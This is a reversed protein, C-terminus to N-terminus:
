DESGTDTDGQDDDTDGTDDGDDASDTEAGETEPADVDDETSETSELDDEVDAQPEEDDSGVPLEDPVDEVAPEPEEPPEVATETETVTDDVPESDPEVSVRQAEDVLPEEAVEDADETALTLVPGAVSAVRPLPPTPLPPLPIPFWGLSLIYDIEDAVGNAFGAAATRVVANIGDAWVAPNFLDNVVPDLFDYVFSDATPLVLDPYWIDIQDAILYGLPVWGLLWPGLDLAIYNAWYRAVSYVDDIVNSAANSVVPDALQGVLALASTFDQPPPPEVPRLLPAASATTIVPRAVAVAEAKAASAPPCAALAGCTVAVVGAALVARLSGNM